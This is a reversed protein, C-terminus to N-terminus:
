NIDNVFYNFLKLMKVDKISAMMEPHWQVGLILTNNKKGEFAEIIGDTSNASVKLGDALIDVAQHHFSNVWLEDGYISDLFSNPIISIKHSLLRQNTNNDHKLTANEIYQLDQYLTGGLAVNAVQAGRCIGLVPIGLKIAIKFLKIDYIDRHFLPDGCGALMESNYLYPSVDEGGSLILLDIGKLQAEIVTENEVVPLVVPVAGVNVVSRIYNDAVVSIDYKDLTNHKDEKLSASIGVKKM